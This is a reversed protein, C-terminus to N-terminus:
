FGRSVVIEHERRLKQFIEKKSYGQFCLDFFFLGKKDYCGAIYTGAHNRQISVLEKTKM